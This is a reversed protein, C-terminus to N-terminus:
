SLLDIQMRFLVMKMNCKLKIFCCNVSLTEELEEAAELGVVDQHRPFADVAGKEQMQFKM